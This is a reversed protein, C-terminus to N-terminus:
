SGTAPQGVQPGATYREIERLSRAPGAVQMLNGRRSTLDTKVSPCALVREVAGTVPDVVIIKNLISDSHWLVRRFFTLGYLQPGEVPIKCLLMM